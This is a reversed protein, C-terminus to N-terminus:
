TGCDANELDQEIEESELVHLLDISFDQMEELRTKYEEEDIEEYPMLDYNGGDYALFAVGIFDDWKDYVINSALDWEDDKVTITNSSNHATYNEQFNFYTDFQEQLTQEARTHKAPSKIPFEVVLTKANEMTSYIEPLVRWNLEKAALALPDNANIRIRRIFYPAHSVHLGSSVGGAVQSLTGEPKVTTVLLPTPIRLIYAYRIAENHATESLMNMLNTEQDTDYMLAEMADKWGTLSTGVLRDRKHIVDWEPLELDICTMRIGARTSLAQAEMLGQFDLLPIDENFRVFAMVNVTTLNCVGKNDLIIEVCPNFGKGNPRRKQAAELNVFGPEGTEKMIAFVMDLMEKSPKERFMISNNSMYRHTMNMRDQQKYVDDWWTPLVDITYLKEGISKHIDLDKIGNIGYKALIVEWDDVDCLFIEATRRVTANM